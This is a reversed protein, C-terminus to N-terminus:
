YERHYKLQWLTYWAENNFCYNLFVVMEQCMKIHVIADTEMTYMFGLVTRIKAEDPHEQADPKLFTVRRPNDWTRWKDRDRERLFKSMDKETQHQLYRM